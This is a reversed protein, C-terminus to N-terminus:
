RRARSARADQARRDGEAARAGGHEHHEGGGAPHHLDGRHRHREAAADPQRGHGRLEGRLGERDGHPDARRLERLARRDGKSVAGAQDPDDIEVYYTGAGLRQGTAEYLYKFNFLMLNTDTGPYKVPDTDFIGACWSSSPGTRAQPLAPHLEGPLLHRGGELRLKDALKRGIVCGRLDQLFAQYQDPPLQYEPYMALFPEAEVALNPFFNSFDTTRRVGRGDEEGGEERAALRRVLGRTAVRKVGPVSQIRGGYALPLNFVISM